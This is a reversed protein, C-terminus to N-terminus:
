KSGNSWWSAALNAFDRFDVAGSMDKDAHNCWDPDSCDTRLWNETLVFLDSFSVNGSGSQFGEAIENIVQVIQERTMNADYVRANSYLGGAQMTGQPTSGFFVTTPCVETRSGSALLWGQPCLIHLAIGDVDQVVAFRILSGPLFDPAHISALTKTLCGNVEELEFNDANDLVLQLWSSGDEVSWSKIVKTGNTASPSYPPQWCFVDTWCSPFAVRHSLTEAARQQGGIQFSVPVDNIALTASDVYFVTGSTAGWTLIDVCLSGSNFPLQWYTTLESWGCGIRKNTRTSIKNNTRDWITLYIRGTDINQGSIRVTASVATGAPFNGRVIPSDIEMTIYNSTNSVKLSNSGSHARESSVEIATNYYTTWSSQTCGEFSSYCPDALLNEEDPEISIGWSTRVTPEPFSMTSVESAQTYMVAYINGAEECSFRNPGYVGNPWQYLNGWYEGDKSIVVSPPDNYGYVVSTAYIADNFERMDYIYGKVLNTCVFEGNESGNLFRYIGDEQGDSGFYAGEPRAIGSTPQETNSILNWTQGDDASRFLQSGGGSSSDGHSWYIHSRYPDALVKHVHYGNMPPPDYLLEWNWGGDLSRYIRRSNDPLTKNGYEGVYIVGNMEAWSWHNPIAGPSLMTLVRVLNKSNPDWMCVGGPGYTGVLLRGAETVYLSKIRYAPATAAAEWNNADLSQYLISNNDGELHAGWFYGDCYALAVINKKSYPEALTYEPRNFIAMKQFRPEGNSVQNGDFTYATSDRTFTMSTEQIRDTLSPQELVASIINPCNQSYAGKPSVLFSIGLLILSVTRKM